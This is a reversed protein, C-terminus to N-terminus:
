LVEEFSQKPLDDLVSKKWMSAGDASSLEHFTPTSGEM